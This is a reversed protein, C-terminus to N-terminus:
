PKQRQTTAPPPHPPPGPAAPASLPGVAGADLATTVTLQPRRPKAGPTRPPTMPTTTATRLPSANRLALRGGPSSPHGRLGTRTRNPSAARPPLHSPSAAAAAASPAASSDTFPWKRAPSAVAPSAAPTNNNSLVKAEFDDDELIRKLIKDIFLQLAKVQEEMEAIQSKTKDGGGSLEDSLSTRPMPEDDLVGMVVSKTKFEGNLTRERLLIQYLENDEMLARNQTQLEELETRVVHIEELAVGLRTSASESSTEIEVLKKKLSSIVADRERIAERSSELAALQQEELSETLQRDKLETETKLEKNVKAHSKVAEKYKAEKEAWDAKIKEWSALESALRREMEDRDRVALKAERRLAEMEASKADLQVEAQSTASLASDLTEQFGLLKNQYINLDGQAEEKEKTVARIREELMFNEDRVKSALVIIQALLVDVGEPLPEQLSAITSALNAAMGHLEDAMSPASSPSAADLITPPEDSM